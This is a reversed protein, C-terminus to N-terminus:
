INHGKSKKNTKINEHLYPSLAVFVRQCNLLLYNNAVKCNCAPKEVWGSGLVIGFQMMFAFDSFLNSM